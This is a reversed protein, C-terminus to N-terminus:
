SREPLHPMRGADRNDFVIAAASLFIFLVAISVRWASPNPRTSSEFAYAVFGILTLYRVYLSAKKPSMPNEGPIADDTM